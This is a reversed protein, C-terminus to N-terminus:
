ATAHRARWVSLIQSAKSTEIEVFRRYVRKREPDIQYTRQEFDFMVIKSPETPLIQKRAMLGEEPDSWRQAGSLTEELVRVLEMNTIIVVVNSDIIPTKSCQKGVIEQKKDAVRVYKFDIDAM